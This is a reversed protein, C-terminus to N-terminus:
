RLGSKMMGMVAMMFCNLRALVLDHDELVERRVVAMEVFREARVRILEHSEDNLSECWCGTEFRKLRSLKM